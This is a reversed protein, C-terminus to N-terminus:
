ASAATRWADPVATLGPKDDPKPEDEVLSWRLEPIAKPDLGLRKDLDGALRQTRTRATSIAKFLDLDEASNIPPLPLAALDDELTARRAIAFTDGPGWAAASPTRWAWKWWGKGADGLTYPCRPSRGTFGGAPLNTTPITPANRRRRTAAPKPLVGAM